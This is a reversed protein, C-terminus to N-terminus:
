LANIQSTMVDDDLKKFNKYEQLRNEQLRVFLARGEDFMSPHQQPQPAQPANGSSLSRAIGSGSGSM